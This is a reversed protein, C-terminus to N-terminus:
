GACARGSRLRSPKPLGRAKIDAQARSGRCVAALRAQALQRIERCKGEREEALVAPVHVPDAAFAAPTDVAVNCVFALKSELFLLPRDCWM